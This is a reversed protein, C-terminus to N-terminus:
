NHLDPDRGLGKPRCPHVELVCYKEEPESEKLMMVIENAESDSSAHLLDKEKAVVYTTTTM